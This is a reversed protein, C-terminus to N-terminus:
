GPGASHYPRWIALMHRIFSGHHADAEIIIHNTGLEMLRHLYYRRVSFLLGDDLAMSFIFEAAHEFVEFIRIFDPPGIRM